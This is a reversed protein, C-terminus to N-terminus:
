SKLIAREIEAVACSVSRMVDRDWVRVITWGMSRLQRRSRRDRRINREIKERWYDSLTESWTAFRRGHWFEGDVFVAVHARVFVIDPCGPLDKRHTRFRYGRRFLERRVALEPATDRSRVRSMAYSRQAPTLNDRSPKKM